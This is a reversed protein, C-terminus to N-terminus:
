KANGRFKSTKAGILSLLKSANKEVRDLQQKRFKEKFSPAYIAFESNRSAHTTAGSPGVSWSVQQIAGDLDIPKIGAYQVQGSVPQQYKVLAENIYSQALENVQDFNSDVNEVNGLKDYEAIENRRLEETYIIEAASNDQGPVLGVIKERFEERTVPDKVTLATILYLDAPKSQRTTEDGSQTERWVPTSFQVIGRETDLTFPVNIRTGPSTEQVGQPPWGFAGQFSGIVYAQRRIRMQQVTDFYTEACLDDIPLVQWLQDVTFPVLDKYVQKIKEDLKDKDIQYWKWITREALEMITLPLQGWKSLLPAIDDVLNGLNFGAQEWGDAPKYSLEDIPNITGDVDEGVATLPIAFQLRTAGSVVKISGPAIISDVGYDLSMQDGDLPLLAGSGKVCIRVLDDLGLVVVCGLMECLRELEQAPNAAVWEIEPRPETPLASVDYGYEGMADLCLSALEQPTKETVAELRGSATRFNYVGYIDGYQWKWRRDVVSFSMIFGREDRRVSATELRCDRFSVQDYGFTFSLTGGTAVLDAQPAIDFVCKSPTVGVGFTMQASIVADVGPFDALGQLSDPM